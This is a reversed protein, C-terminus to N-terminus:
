KIISPMLVKAAKGIAGSLNILKLKVEGYKVIDVQNIKM